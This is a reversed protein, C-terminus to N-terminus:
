LGVARALRNDVSQLASAIVNGQRVQLRSVAPDDARILAIAKRIEAVATQVVARAAAVSPAARVGRAAERIVAAVNQLPGPLSLSRTDIANAFQDLAAGVCTGYGQGSGECQRLRRELDNSSRQVFNLAETAGSRTNAGGGGGLGTTGVGLSPGGGGVNIEILTNNPPVPVVAQALQRSLTPSVTALQLPLAQQVVPQDPTPAAAGRGTTSLISQPIPLGLLFPYSTQGNVGTGYAASSFGAPLGNQLQATTQGTGVGGTQGTTQTDFFSSTVGVSSGNGGLGGTRVTGSAASGGVVPGFAYSESVNGGGIGFLGGTDSSGGSGTSSGGTARGSAFSQSVTGSDDGVLGGVDSIGNATGGTVNGTAYSRSISGTNYGVLGGVDDYSGGRGGFVDGTAYSLTVTGNNFGVLGGTSPFNTATGGNVRTGSASSQTITGANQGVLGGTYALSPNTSTSGSVSGGQVSVGTVSATSSLSGALAGVSSTASGTYLSSVTPNTLTLNSITGGQVVGFLGATTGSSAVSLGNIAFGRGDFTGTFTTALGGIPRFGAGDNWAATETASINNALASFGNLAGSTGIGQLGYIDTVLFPAAATGNGGLVRTFSVSTGTGLTFLGASFGPLSPSNQIWNGRSLRFEGPTSIAGTATISSGVTTSPGATIFIGAGTTLNGNIQVPGGTVFAVGGRLTIPATVTISTPGQLGLSGGGNIAGNIVIAGAAVLSLNSGSTWTIPAAVTINGAQTGSSGTTVNVNATALANQLTTVNINSDNGNPTFQTGTQSGIPTVLTGPATTNGADPDASITVNYPDLLLTGFSGKPATLDTTGAYALVAKGSVEAFGGNGGDPGGKASILGRFTTLNDSWLIVRGGDGSKLADARIVTAADVSTTSARQLTGGGQYEGGIRVSGGGAAGSADIQAGALRIDDGSVTISGGKATSPRGQALARRGGSADLKGSVTVTGGDGGGLVIAGNRGSVTRAEVLGSVNIVNRAAERVSAAQMEVRGGNARIRGSNEILAKDTSQGTSPVAVQLFGDGSLDLTVQEGSALGVKGLPVSITGSNEVRGGILAAYGGSGITITGENVVAASSGGGTFARKGSLFDQDSTNLTSAVFAGANVVGTKTIAIGNPNVLYVQGNANIQGAITSPTSGTVRNLLSSQASPQNINVTAGQGVSFGQWNVIATGTSQQIQMTSGNPMSIAVGGAAVSPATPLMAQGFAPGVLATSALLAFTLRTEIRTM